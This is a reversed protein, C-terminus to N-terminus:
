QISIAGTLASVTIAQHKGQHTITLTATRGALAGNTHFELPESSPQNGVRIEIAVSQPIKLHQDLWTGTVVNMLRVERNTSDVVVAHDEHSGIAMQRALSILGMMQRTTTHLRAQQTYGLFAPISIGLILGIIAMVVLMEVLTMGIKSQRISFGFDSIWFKM